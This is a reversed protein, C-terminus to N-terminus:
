HKINKDLYNILSKKIMKKMVIASNSINIKGNKESNSHIRKISHLYPIIRSSNAINPM